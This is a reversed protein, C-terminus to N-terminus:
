IKDARLSSIFSEYDNAFMPMGLMAQIASLLQCCNYKAQSGKLLPVLYDDFVIADDQNYWVAGFKHQEDYYIAINSNDDVPIYGISKYSSNLIDVQASSLRSVEPTFDDKSNGWIAELMNVLGLGNLREYKASENSTLYELHKLSYICCYNDITGNLQGLGQYFSILDDPLSTSHKKEFSRIETLSVTDDFRYLGGVDIIFQGFSGHSDDGNELLYAYYDRKGILVIENELLCAKKLETVEYDSNANDQTTLTFEKDEINTSSMAPAQAVSPESFLEDDELSPNEALAAYKIQKLQDKQKKNSSPAAIRVDVFMLWEADREPWDLLLQTMGEVDESDALSSIRKYLESNM